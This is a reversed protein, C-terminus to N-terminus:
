DVATRELRREFERRRYRSLPLRTGDVLLVEVEGSPTRQLERVRDLRVIHSRHIRFFEPPLIAEIEKMRRRVLFAEPGVHLRLYYGVAEIREIERITVYFTRGARRVVVRSPREAGGGGARTVGDAAAAHGFSDAAWAAAEAEMGTGGRTGLASSLRELFADARRRRVEYRARDLAVQVRSADPPELLYDLAHVDFARGAAEYTGGSFVVLPRHPHGVRDLVEFGTLDAFRVQLFVLDPALEPIADVAEAGTELEGVLPMDPQEAVIRALATRVTSDGHAVLVRVVPMVVARGAALPGRELM